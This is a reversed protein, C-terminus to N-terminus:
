AFQIFKIMEKVGLINMVRKMNYALVTMSMETAVKVKGRLLFYKQEMWRKITGFPHEVLERRKKMMEPHERMRQRLKDIVQGHEWRQLLRKKSRKRTCKSLLQCTRCVIGEYFKMVKGRKRGQRRYTLREKAPCIYCDQEADYHFDKKTFLGKQKNNSKEPEPIYCTIKNDDCTKIEEEKYYGMDTVVSLTEVGLTEKAKLAMSSLQNQDNTDNTVDFDVILKHKEDVAIQVNYSIDTGGQTTVMMRSEPDTLSRQQEGSEELDRQIQELWAKYEQMQVIREKMDTGSITPVSQEKSDEEELLTFYEAIHKDIEELTTKLRKRTYTKRTHNVAAFKSGDIGVLESGFLELKKCLVIFERCVKKLPSLNDKRFDSITKFDPTLRQLLWMVEVNRQTAKELQRSSRTKNLYGYIYLKLLDASDYPPRGTANVEAHTFGLKKLDLQNVFVDLFRVPNDDGIFDDLVEPFLTSQYRNVGQIFNM